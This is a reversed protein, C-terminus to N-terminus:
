HQMRRKSLLGHERNRPSHAKKFQLAWAMARWRCVSFPAEPPACKQEAWERKIEERRACLVNRRKATGLALPSTSQVSGFLCLALRCFGRSRLSAISTSRWVSCSRPFPASSLGWAGVGLAMTSAQHTPRPEESLM